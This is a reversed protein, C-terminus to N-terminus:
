QSPPHTMPVARQCRHSAHVAAARQLLPGAAGLCLVSLLGCVSRGELRSATLLLLVAEPRRGLVRVLSLRHGGRWQMRRRWGPGAPTQRHRGAQRVQMATTFPFALRGKLLGAARSISCVDFVVEGSGEDLVVRMREEGAVM